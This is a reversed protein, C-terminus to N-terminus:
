KDVSVDLVVKLQKSIASEIKIIDDLKDLIRKEIKDSYKRSQKLLLMLLIEWDDNDRDLTQICNFCLDTKMYSNYYELYQKFFKHRKMVSYVERYLKMYDINNSNELIFKKLEEIAGLGQEEKVCFYNDISLRVLERLLKEPKVFPMKKITAWNNNIAVGSYFSGDFSNDSSRAMLFRDIEIRGKYLWPKYWDIVYVVNDCRDIGCLILTHRAHNKKYNTAYPLYYTDVGVIIPTNNEEMFAINEEFIDKADVNCYENREIYNYISPLLGRYHKKEKLNFYDLGRECSLSMASNIYLLSYNCGNAELLIRLCNQFCFSDFGDYYELELNYIENLYFNM